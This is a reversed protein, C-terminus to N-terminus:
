KTLEEITRKAKDEMPALCLNVKKAIKSKMLLDIFQRYTKDKNNTEIYDLISKITKVLDDEKIHQDLMRNAIEEIVLPEYKEGCYGRSRFENMLPVINAKMDTDSRVFKEVEDVFMIKVVAKAWGLPSKVNTATECKEVFLKLFKDEDINGKDNIKRETFMVFENIFEKDVYGVLLKSISGLIENYDPQLKTIM